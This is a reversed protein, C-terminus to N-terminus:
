PLADARVAHSWQEGLRGYQPAYRDSLRPPEIVAGDSTEVCGDIVWGNFTRTAVSQPLVVVFAMRMSFTPSSYRWVKRPSAGVVTSAGNSSTVRPTKFAIASISSSEPRLIRSPSLIM